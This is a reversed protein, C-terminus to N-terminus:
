ALDLLYTIGDSLVLQLPFASIDCASTKWLGSTVSHARTGSARKSLWQLIAFAIMPTLM